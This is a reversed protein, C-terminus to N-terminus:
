DGPLVPPLLGGREVLRLVAKSPRELQRRLDDFRVQDFQRQACLRVIEREIEVRGGVVLRVRQVPGATRNDPQREM